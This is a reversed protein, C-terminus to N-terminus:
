GLYWECCGGPRTRESLVRLRCRVRRKWDEAVPTEAGATVAEVAQGLVASAAGLEMGVEFAAM